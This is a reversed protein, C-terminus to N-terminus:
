ARPFTHDLKRLTPGFLKTLNRLLAPSSRVESKCQTYALTVTDLAFKSTAIVLDNFWTKTILHPESPDALSVRIGDSLGIATPFFPAPPFDVFSGRTALSIHSSLDLSPWVVYASWRRITLDDYDYPVWGPIRDFFAEFSSSRSFIRPSNRQPSILSLEFIPRDPRLSELFSLSASTFTNSRNPSHPPPPTTNAPAHILDLDFPDLPVPYLLFDVTNQDISDTLSLGRYSLGFSIANRFCSGCCSSNYGTCAAAISGLHRHSAPPLDMYLQHLHPVLSEWPSSYPILHTEAYMRVVRALFEVPTSSSTPM